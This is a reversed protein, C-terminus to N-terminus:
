AASHALANQGLQSFLFKAIEPGGQYRVPIRYSAGGAFTVEAFPKSLIPSTTFAVSSLTTLDQAVVRNPHWWARVLLTGGQVSYENAKIALLAVAALCSAAAICGIILWARLPHPEVARLGFQATLIFLSAAATAYLRLPPTAKM